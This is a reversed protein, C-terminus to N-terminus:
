GLRTKARVLDATEFGETFSAYVEGLRARYKSASEGREGLDCLSLLVRLELSKSEQKQAVDLAKLLYFEAQELGEGSRFYAEGLLRYIESSYFRETNLEGDGSQTQELFEVAQKYRENQICADALLSLAYPEFLFAAIVRIKELGEQLEAIGKEFEGQTANAWGRLVLSLALYHPFEHEACLAIAEGAQSAVAATEGRLQHVRLTITRAMAESYPHHSTDGYARAEACVRLAQDSYGLFHLAMGYYLRVHVRPDQASLQLYAAAKSDECLSISHKLEQHAASFKGRAFFMFGQAEHALVKYVSDAVQEAANLLHDALAQSEDLAGHVFNWTWLGFVAPLTHEDFGSEKCLQLARTYAQRVGDASWGEIARLSNGLATQLLLESKIRLVPDDIHPIQKLGQKLHDVAENHASRAASQKGAEYWYHVAKEYSRAQTYHYAIIEPHARATESFRKEILRGVKKHYTEREAKTLLAYAADRILAHKFEFV